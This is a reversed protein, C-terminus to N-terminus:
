LTPRISERTGPQLDDRCNQDTRKAYAAKPQARLIHRGVDCRLCGHQACRSVHLEHLGQSERASASRLGLTEFYRTLEDDEAAVNALLALGKDVAMRRDRRSCRAILLPLVANITIRRGRAAGVRASHHASARELRYHTEWFEPVPPDLLASLRSILVDPQSLDFNDVTEARFLRGASVMASAQAIRLPPFNSPRLRFFQWQNASMPEREVSRRLQEFRKKLREIRIQEANACETQSAVPILGAMGFYLAEVDLTVDIQRAVALPVRDALDLMAAENKSFGLAGLVGRYLLREPPLGDALQAEVSISRRLLRLRSMRRVAREKVPSPIAPWETECIIAGRDRTRFQHLLKRLSVGLHESLVIEEVTTGDCRSVSGTWLDAVLTVHLVVSNYRPDRHHGHRFWDESRVHIEVDGIWEIEDIRLRANLFDPGGDRNQRGPDRVRVAQGAVTRLSTTDFSCQRWIDQVFDEPMQDVRVDPDRATPTRGLTADWRDRYIPLYDHLRSRFYPSLRYTTRGDQCPM